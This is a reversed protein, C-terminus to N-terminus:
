GPAFNNTAEKTREQKFIGRWPRSGSNNGIYHDGAFGEQRSHAGM